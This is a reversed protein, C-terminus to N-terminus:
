HYPETTSPKETMLDFPLTMMWTRAAKDPACFSTMEM